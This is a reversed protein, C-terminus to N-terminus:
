PVTVTVRDSDMVKGDVDYGYIWYTYEGPEAYTHSNPFPYVYGDPMPLFTDMQGDGWYWDVRYFAADNVCFDLPDNNLGGNAEVTFENIVPDRFLWLRNECEWHTECELNNEDRVQDLIAYCSEFKSRDETNSTVGEWYVFENAGIAPDEHVFLCDFIDNPEEGWESAWTVGHFLHNGIPSIEGPYSIIDLEKTVWAADYWWLNSYDYCAYFSPHAAFYEADELGFCPCGTPILCPMTPDAETKKKNYNQLLRIKSNGNNLLGVRDFDQAECYAVCLGYLGPTGGKLPDCVDENAPTIGDPTQAYLIGTFLIMAGAVFITKWNM